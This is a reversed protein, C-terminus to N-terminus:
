VDRQILYDSEPIKWSLFPVLPALPGETTGLLSLLSVVSLSALVVSHGVHFLSPILLFLDRVSQFNPSTKWNISLLM